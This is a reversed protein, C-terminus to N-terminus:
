APAQRWPVVYGGRLVAEWGAFAAVIGDMVVPDQEERTGVALAYLLYVFVGHAQKGRAEAHTTLETLVAPMLRSVLLSVGPAHHAAIEHAGEAVRSRADAIEDSAPPQQEPVFGRAADLASFLLSILHGAHEEGYGEGPNDASFLWGVVSDLLMIEMSPMEDTTLSKLGHVIDDEWSGGPNAM